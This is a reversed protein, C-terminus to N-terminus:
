YPIKSFIDSATAEARTHHKCLLRLLSRAQKRDERAEDREDDGDPRHDNRGARPANALREEADDLSITAQHLAGYAIRQQMEALNGVKIASGQPCHQGALEGLDLLLHDLESQDAWELFQWLDFALQSPNLEPKTPEISM